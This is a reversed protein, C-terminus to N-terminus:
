AGVGPAPTTPATGDLGYSSFEVTVSLDNAAYNNSFLTADEGEYWIFIQVKVAAGKDFPIVESSPVLQSQGNDKTGASSLTIATADNGKTADKWTLNTSHGEIPAYIYNGVFSGDTKVLRVGVRIAPDLDKNEGRTVTVKSVFLGEARRDEATSRVEFPQMVVYDNATFAGTGGAFISGTITKYTSTDAASASASSAKAYTWNALDKTSAPYLAKADTMKASATIGWLESTEGAWRIALGGESRAQVKMGEAKVTGSAVFWAYTSSGLALAAVLVMAIAALLQRKIAKSNM